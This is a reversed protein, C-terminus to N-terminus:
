WEWKEQHLENKHKKTYIIVEIFFEIFLAAAILGIAKIFLPLWKPLQMSLLVGLFTFLFTLAAYITTMTICYKEFRWQFLLKKVAEVSDKVSSLIAASFLAVGTTFLTKYLDLSIYVAIVGEGICLLGIFFLLIDDSLNRLAREKEIRRELKEVRETLNEVM